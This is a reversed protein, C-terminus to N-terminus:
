PNNQMQAVILPRVDNWIVTATPVNSNILIIATYNHEFDIWPTCGFAGQDSLEPGQTTPAPQSRLYAPDSHWWGYSYGTLRTGGPNNLATLGRRQDTQMEYYTGNTIIRNAAFTGNALYMQLIRTYDSVDSFAGGPVRPNQTNTYTYRTLGLPNGVKQAFFQNWSQGAIVEAVYGALQMSNGGYDFRTGPTYSLPLNLIQQACLQLTTTRDDLCSADATGSLGSTHNMLMRMTLNAKDAPVNVFGNLYTTVPADLNLLGSDVLTMIATMSPMKTASALPLITNVTQSGFAQSYIVRGHRSLMMTLGPVTSPVHSQLTGSLATWDYNGVSTNSVNLSLSNSPRGKSVVSVQLSGASAVVNAPVVARLRNWAVFYTDLDVGNLRVVSRKSFNSGNVVIPLNQAGTQVANPSISYVRSRQASVVNAAVLVTVLLLIKNM